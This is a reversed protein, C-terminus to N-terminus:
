LYYRTTLSLTCGHCLVGAFMVPGSDDLQLGALHQGDPTVISDVSGGLTQDSRFAARVAEILADFELESQAVDDISMYGRIRWGILGEHRGVIKSTERTTVRRVHWGLIREGSKYIDRFDKEAKAYREYDHVLGIGPVTMLKAVIAARIAALDLM